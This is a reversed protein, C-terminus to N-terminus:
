VSSRESTRCNDLAEKLAEFARRRHSIGNKEEDSMEGYTLGGPEDPIFVSDWGFGGPGRPEAAISGEVVGEGCIEISGDTACLLCRATARPDDFCLAIRGIGAAGVSTLLWRVLPGPFGGLGALELGTDEVLVPRGIERWAAAAKGRVVEALDLSQIEPLDLACHDLACGLVAEAERVKNLNSTVFVLDALRM